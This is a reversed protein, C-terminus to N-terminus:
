AKRNARRRTALLAFVAMGTLALTGPEPVQTALQRLQFGNIVGVEGPSFDVTQTSGDAIFTGIAFQGLKGDYHCQNVFYCDPQPPDYGADYGSKLSVASDGPSSASLEYGGHFTEASDNAWVEFEYTQGVTLGAMVLTADGTTIAASGLLSQYASSLTTFPANTSRIDDSGFFLDGSLTFNGVTAATTAPDFFQNPATFAEFSVTNVITGAGNLSFARVLTGTTDVDTDGSIYTAMGWSIPAADVSGAALTLSAAAALVAIGSGRRFQSRMPRVKRFRNVHVLAPRRGRTVVAGGLALLTLALTQPEPVDAAVDGPRVAVAYFANSKGFRYQGGVTSSFGWAYSPDPAYETGSWYWNDSQVGDFQSQLGALSSGVDTWISRYQNLAGAAQGVDGTPLFWGTFDTQAAGASEALAQASGAAPTASGTWVGTGINWDNLITIDLTTDYFMACKSAGSVTCTSSATGDALRGQFVPTAQAAGALAVWCAAAALIKLLMKM